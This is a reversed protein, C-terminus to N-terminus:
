EWHEAIFDTTEKLAERGEPMIRDFLPFGHSVGKYVTMRTETGLETLAANYLIAEDRLPDAQAVILLTPALQIPPKADIAYPALSNKDGPIDVLGQLMILPSAYPETARSPDGLYNTITRVMAPGSIIYVKGDIGGFLFRSPYVTEMLTLNPYLLTVSTPQPLNNEYLRISLGAALNGGASDGALAMKTNDIGLDNANAVLWQWAAFVDETAIPFKYEPALRYEPFVVVANLDNSLISVLRQYTDFKGSSFSGGHIMMIVPLPGELNEYNKPWVFVASITGGDVPIQLTDEKGVPEPAFVRAEVAEAEEELKKSAIKDQLTTKDKESDIKTLEGVMMATVRNLTIEPDPTKQLERVEADTYGLKEQIVSDIITTCGTLVVSLCCLLLVLVSIRTRHRFESM